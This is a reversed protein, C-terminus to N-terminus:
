RELSDNGRFYSILFYSPRLAVNKIFQIGAKAPIVFLGLRGSVPNTKPANQM